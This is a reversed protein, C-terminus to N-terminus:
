LSRSGDGGVNSWELTLARALKVFTARAEHELRARPDVHAMKGNTAKATAGDRAIEDRLANATDIARLAEALMLRRGASRTRTSTEHVWVTQAAESLGTPVPFANPAEGTM